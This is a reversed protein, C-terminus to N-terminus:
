RERETIVEMSACQNTRAVMCPSRSMDFGPIDSCPSILVIIHSRSPIIGSQASTSNGVRWAVENDSERLISESELIRARVTVAGDDNRVIALSSVGYDSIRTDSTRPVIWVGEVKCLTEEGMKCACACADNIYVPAESINVIVLRSGCRVMMGRCRLMGGTGLAAVRACAVARLLCKRGARGCVRRRRWGARRVRYVAAIEVIQVLGYQAELIQHASSRCSQCSISYHQKSYGRWRGSNATWIGRNIKQQTQAVRTGGAKENM